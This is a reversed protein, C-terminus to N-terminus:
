LKGNGVGHDLQFVLGTLLRSGLQHQAADPEGNALALKDGHHAWGSCPFRRQQIHQCKSSSLQSPSYQNPSRRHVREVALLAGFEGALADAHDELAVVQEVVEGHGLVDIQREGVLIQGGLLAGAHDGVYEVAKLDHGLLIQKGILEGAALLLEDADRAGDDVRGRQKEGILGGAIQM